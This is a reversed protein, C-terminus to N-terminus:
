NHHRSPQEYERGSGSWTITVATFHFHINELAFNKKSVIKIFKYLNKRIRNSRNEDMKFQLRSIFVKVIDTHGQNVAFSLATWRRNEM